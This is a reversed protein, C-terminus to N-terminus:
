RSLVFGPYGSNQEDILNKRYMPMGGMFNLPERKKGPINAAYYWSDAQSFLGKYGHENIQEKFAKEAEHTADISSYNNDRLHKLCDVIFSGQNEAHSPGTAFATPAQPGYCFFMNPFGATAIGLQTFVGDKWKDLITQGGVGRLDIQTMGGTHTDFGTAFVIVEFSHVRGDATKVGEETFEVIDNELTSILEVNDQNFCEFYRTELSIRKTGFPHPKKAPALLEQNRPDKIRPLTKSRWFQYLEENYEEDYFCDLYTGLWLHLGGTHYLKEYSRMREERPVDGPKTKDFEYDFGAFTLKMKKATEPFGDRMRKNLAATQEPNSMKLATNPTRQFVTLHSAQQSVEQIAQVGSAGTGIIGVSRNDVNFGKQPWQSTHIIEGKFKDVGPWPPVYKKSAFGTCLVVSWATGTSQGDNIEYKWRSTDADWQMATVKSNYSIDKGLDWVQELHRFYDCLEDRGPFLQKWEWTHWTEKDTLQYTPAPTDVRAGPYNNWHWIGGLGSGHEFLRVKFGQERLHFLLWVGCFGGGVVAVDWDPADPGASGM